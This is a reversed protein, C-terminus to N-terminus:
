QLDVKPINNPAMIMVDKTKAKDGWCHKQM